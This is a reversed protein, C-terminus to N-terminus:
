LYEIGSFSKVDIPKLDYQGLNIVRYYRIIADCFDDNITILDCAPSIINQFIDKYSHWSRIFNMFSQYTPSLAKQRDYERDFERMYELFPEIVYNKDEDNSNKWNILIDYLYKKAQIKKM